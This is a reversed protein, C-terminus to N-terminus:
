LDIGVHEALAMFRDADVSRWGHPGTWRMVSAPMGMAKGMYIGSWVSDVLACVGAPHLAHNRLSVGGGFRRGIRRFLPGDNAGTESLWHQVARFPCLRVLRQCRLLEGDLRIELVNEDTLLQVIELASLQGCDLGTWFGLLVMAKLRTLSWREYADMELLTGRPGLSRDMKSVAKELWHIEPFQVCSAKTFSPLQVMASVCPAESSKVARQVWCVEM